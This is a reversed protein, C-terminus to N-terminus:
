VLVRANKLARQGAGGIERLTIHRAYRGLEAESFAGAAVPVAEDQVAIRSRLHGLLLRYAMVMSVLVGLVVWGVFDGGVFPGPLRLTGSADLAREAQWVPYTLALLGAWWGVWLGWFAGRRLRRWQAVGWIAAFGLIGIM